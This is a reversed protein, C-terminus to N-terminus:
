KKIIIINKICNRCSSVHGSHKVRFIDFANAIWTENISVNQLLKLWEETSLYGKQINFKLFIHSM